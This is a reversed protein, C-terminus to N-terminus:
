TVSYASSSWGAVEQRPRSGCQRTDSKVESHSRYDAPILMALQDKPSIKRTEVQSGAVRTDPGLDAVQTWTPGTNLIWIHDM